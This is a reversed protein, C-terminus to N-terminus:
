IGGRYIMLPVIKFVSIPSTIQTHNKGLVTLNYGVQM